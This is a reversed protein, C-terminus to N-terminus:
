HKIRIVHHEHKGKTMAVVVGDFGPEWIESLTYNNGVKDFVLHSDKEEGSFPHGAVYTLIMALAEGGKNKEPTVSVTQSDQSVRFTYSGAPLTKTDVKFAFPVRATVAEQFQAPSQPVALLALLAALGLCSLRLSKFIKEQFRM